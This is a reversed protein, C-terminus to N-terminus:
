SPGVSDGASPRLGGFWTRREGGGETYKAGHRVFGELPWVAELWIDCFFM